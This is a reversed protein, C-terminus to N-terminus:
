MIAQVSATTNSMLVINAPITGTGIWSGSSLSLTLRLISAAAPRLDVFASGATVDTAHVVVTFNSGPSLSLPIVDIGTIAPTSHAVWPVAGLLLVLLTRRSFMSIRIM